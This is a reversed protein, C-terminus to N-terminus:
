KSELWSKYADYSGFSKPPAENHLFDMYAFLRFRNTSDATQCALYLDNCLVASMFSGPPIKNSLYNYMGPVMYAPLDRKAFEAGIKELTLAEGNVIVEPM